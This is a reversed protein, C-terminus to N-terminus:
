EIVKREVIIKKIVDDHFCDETSNNDMVMKVEEGVSLEKTEYLWENDVNDILVVYGNEMRDVIAERTYTSEVISIIIIIIAVVTVVLGTNLRERTVNKM